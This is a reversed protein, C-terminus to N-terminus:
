NKLGSLEGMFRQYAARVQTEAEMESIRGKSLESLKQSAAKLKENGKGKGFFDEAWAVAIGALRDDVQTPTTRILKVILMGLLGMLVPTLVTIISVLIQVWINDM